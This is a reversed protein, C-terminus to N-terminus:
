RYEKDPRGSEQVRCAACNLEAGEVGPADSRLVEVVSALSRARRQQCPLNAAGTPDGDTPLVIRSRKFTWGKGPTEKM